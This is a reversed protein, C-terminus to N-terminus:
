TTVTALATVTLLLLQVLFLVKEDCVRPRKTSLSWAQWICQHRRREGGQRVSSSM